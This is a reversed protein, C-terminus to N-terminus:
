YTLLIEISGGKGLHSSGVEEKLHNFKTRETTKELEASYQKYGYSTSVEQWDYQRSHSFTAVQNGKLAFIMGGPFISHNKYNISSSLVPDLEEFVSLSYSSTPIDYPIDYNWSAEDSIFEYETEDQHNKL